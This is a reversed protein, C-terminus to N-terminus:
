TIHLSFLFALIGSQIAFGIIAGLAARDFLALLGGGVFTGGAVWLLMEGWDGLLTGFHYLTTLALVGLILLPVSVALRRNIVIWREWDARQDDM